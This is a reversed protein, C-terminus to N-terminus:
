AVQNDEIEYKCFCDCIKKGWTKTIVCLTWWTKNKFSAM